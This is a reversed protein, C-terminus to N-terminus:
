FIIDKFNVPTIQTYANVITQQKMEHMFQSKKSGHQCAKIINEIDKDINKKWYYRRALQKM